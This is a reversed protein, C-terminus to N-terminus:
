VGVSVCVFNGVYYIWMWMWMWMRSCMNLQCLWNILRLWLGLPLKSSGGLLTLESDNILHRQLSSICVLRNAAAMPRSLCAGQSLPLM